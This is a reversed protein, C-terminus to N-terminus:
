PTILIRLHMRFYIGCAYVIIHKLFFRQFQKQWPLMKIHSFQRRSKEVCQRLFLKSCDSLHHQLKMTYCHQVLYCVKEIITSDLSLFLHDYIRILATYQILVDITLCQMSRYHNHLKVSKYLSWGFSRTRM